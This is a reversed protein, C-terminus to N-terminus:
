MELEYIDFKNKLLDITAISNTFTAGKGLLTKIVESAQLSAMLSALPGFVGTISCPLIGAEENPRPVLESFPISGPIWTLIQGKWGSIGATSFPISNGICFSELSYSTSPNDAADVIMDPKEDMEKLVKETILKPILDVKIQPNLEIIRQRLIAAKFQGAEEEKFFFQRQLNSIEVTDFDAIVLHGIGAGALIMACMSGLAGCGVILVSAENLRQRGEKGIEPLRTQATYRM